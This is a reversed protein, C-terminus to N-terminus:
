QATALGRMTGGDALAGAEDVPSWRLGKEGFTPADLTHRGTRQTIGRGHVTTEITISRLRGRGAEIGGLAIPRSSIALDLGPMHGDTIAFVGAHTRTRALIARARTPPVDRGHVTSVVLDVGDICISAADLPDSNGPDVLAVKSLDGGHEHVALLGFKPQGILAVHYGAASVAAVLGVLLSGAGTISLTTGRVLAGHPLLEAVPLPVPITRLTRARVPSPRFDGNGASNTDNASSLPIPIPTQMAPEPLLETPAHDRRGPITAMRKRLADLQATKDLRTPDAAAM